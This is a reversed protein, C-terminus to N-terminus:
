NFAVLVFLACEIHASKVHVAPLSTALPKLNSHTQFCFAPGVLLHGIFRLNKDFGSCNLLTQINGM